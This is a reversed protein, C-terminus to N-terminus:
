HSQLESTHEESRLANLTDQMTQQRNLRPIDMATKLKQGMVNQEIDGVGAMYGGTDLAGRGAAQSALRREAAQAGANAINYASALDAAGYMPQQAQKVLAQYQPILSMRYATLNPDETQQSTSSGKTVTKSGFGM